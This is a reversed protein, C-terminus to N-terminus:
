HTSAKTQSHYALSIWSIYLVHWVLTAAFNIHRIHVKKKKALAPVTVPTVSVTEEAVVETEETTLSQSSMGLRHNYWTTKCVYCGCHDCYKRAYHRKEDFALMINALCKENNITHTNQKKNITSRAM